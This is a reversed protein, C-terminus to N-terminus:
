WHQESSKLQQLIVAPHEADPPASKVGSSGAIYRPHCRPSSAPPPNPRTSSTSLRKVLRNHTQLLLHQGRSIRSSFSGFPSYSYHHCRALTEGNSCERVSGVSCYQDLPRREAPRFAGCQNFIHLIPFAIRVRTRWFSQVPELMISCITPLKATM